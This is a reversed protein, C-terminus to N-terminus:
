EQTAAWEGFKGGLVVGRQKALSILADGRSPEGSRRARHAAGPTTDDLALYRLRPLVAPDALLTEVEEFQPLADSYGQSAHAAPSFLLSSLRPLPLIGVLSPSVDRRIQIHLSDLHRFAALAERLHPVSESPSFTFARLSNRAQAPLAALTKTLNVAPGWGQLLSLSDLSTCARIISLANGPTAASLSLSKIRTPWLPTPPPDSSSTNSRPFRGRPDHLSLTHLSPLADLNTYHDLTLVDSFPPDGEAFALSTLFHLQTLQATDLLLTAFTWDLSLSTLRSLLPLLKQVDAVTQYHYAQEHLEALLVYAGLEPYTEFVGLTVALDDFYNARIRLERFAIRRSSPLFARHVAGLYQKPHTAHVLDAIQHLLEAPLSLITPM